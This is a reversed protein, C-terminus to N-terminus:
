SAADGYFSAVADALDRESLSEWRALADPPPLPLAELEYASVAVTGTLCRYLRDLTSTRLLRALLGATLATGSGTCRLVNVHNEVVVEGGWAALTKADLLAVILRRPQEPATTRQVLVAPARLTMFTDQARLAIWRQQDRAPDRRVTGGDIDAAWVIPLRGAGPAAAIQPKHRNWVLPGTRAKWGYDPLRAHLRSATRLLRRDAPRRPLLWPAAAADPRPAAPLRTLEISGNVSLHSCAVADAPEDKRFVAICTEQLVGGSFVGARADVFALRVMPARAAAFSRLRQYYSGGLFSTPVVAAVIGGPAVREIAAHLFLAYRNAHGYLSDRWRRRDRTGLRVRGYPPNMAIVQPRDGAAALGDGVRLLQPLPARESESIQAWLPLLEAGLIANGLWVAVADTDTGAIRAPLEALLEGPHRTSGVAERLPPLLLAGTGCAPDVASGDVGGAQRVEDWLVRALLAPTYHRGERLRTEPDLASIYAEGLEAASAGYLSEVPSGDLPAPPAPLARRWDEWEPDLGAARVRGAWWGPVTALVDAVRSRLAHAPERALTAAM